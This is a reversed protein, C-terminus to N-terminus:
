ADGGHAEASRAAVIALSGLLVIAERARFLAGALGEPDTSYTVADVIAAHADAITQRIQTELESM